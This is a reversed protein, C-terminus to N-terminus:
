VSCLLLLSVACADCSGLGSCRLHVIAGVMPPLHAAVVFIHYHYGLRSCLSCMCCAQCADTAWCRARQQGQHQCRHRPETSAHLLHEDHQDDLCTSVLEPPATPAVRSALGHDRFGVMRIDDPLKSAGLPSVFVVQHIDVELFGALLSLSRHTPFDEDQLDDMISPLRQGLLNSHGGGCLRLRSPPGFVLMIALLLHRQDHWRHCSPQDSASSCAM